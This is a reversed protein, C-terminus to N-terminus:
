TRAAEKLVALTDRLGAVIRTPSLRQDALQPAIRLALDAPPRRSQRQGRHFYLAADHAQPHPTEYWNYFHGRYLELKKWQRWRDPGLSEMLGPLSIYGFDHAALTTLTAFASTPQALHPHRRRTPSIEVFNDPPLWHHRRCQCVNRFFNWTRRSNRLQSIQETSFEVRKEKLPLSIWWAITPSVM